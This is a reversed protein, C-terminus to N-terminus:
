VHAHYISQHRIQPPVSITTSRSSLVYQGKSRPNADDHLWVKSFFLPLPPPRKMAKQVGGHPIAATPTIVRRFKIENLTPHGGSKKYDTSKILPRDNILVLSRIAVNRYTLRASSPFSSRSSFDRESRHRWKFRRKGMLGDRLQSYETKRHM